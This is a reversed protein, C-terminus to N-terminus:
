LMPGLYVIKIQNCIRRRIQMSQFPKRRKRPFPAEGAENRGSKGALGDFDFSQVVHCPNGSPVCIKLGFLVIPPFKQPGHFPFHQYLKPGKTYNVAIQWMQYIKEQKPISYCSFDPM